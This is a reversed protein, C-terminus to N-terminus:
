RVAGALFLEAQDARRAAKCDDCSVTSWTHDISAVKSRGCAARTGEMPGHVKSDNM